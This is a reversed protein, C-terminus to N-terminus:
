RCYWKAFSIMKLVSMEINRLELIKSIITRSLVEFNTLVSSFIGMKNAHMIILSIALLFISDENISM